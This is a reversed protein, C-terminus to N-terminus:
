ENEKKLKNLYDDFQQQTLYGLTIAGKIITGNKRKRDQVYKWTYGGVTKCGRYENCCHAISQHSLGYVIEVEMAGWFIRNLEICYVPTARPNKYGQTQKKAKQSLKNKTEETHHKHYFPNLEGNLHIGYMPNNKGSLAKSKKENITLMEKETKNAFPNKGYMPNNEGRYKGSKSKSMKEKSTTSHKWGRTSGGGYVLNYWNDSEVVNLFVSIQYETENLEEESYCIYIIDRHFNEKGHKKLADKFVKGSGLYKQWGKTFRRQGLYRKGNVLNTTIYIFGYPDIIEREVVEEM